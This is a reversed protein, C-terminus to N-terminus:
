YEKKEFFIGGRLGLVCVCNRGVVHYM